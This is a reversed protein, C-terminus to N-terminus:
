QGKIYEERGFLGEMKTYHSLQEANPEDVQNRFEYLAYALQCLRRNDQIVMMDRKVNMRHKLYKVAGFYSTDDSYLIWQREHEAMYKDAVGSSRTHTQLYEQVAQVPFYSTVSDRDYKDYYVRVGDEKRLYEDYWKHGPCVQVKTAIGGRAESHYKRVIRANINEQLKARDRHGEFVLIAHLHLKGSKGHETVVYGYKCQVKCLCVIQEIVESKVDDRTSITLHFTRTDVRLPQPTSPSGLSSDRLSVTSGATDAPGSCLESVSEVTESMFVRLELPLKYVSFKIFFQLCPLSQRLSKETSIGVTLQFPAFLKECCKEMSIEPCLLHM